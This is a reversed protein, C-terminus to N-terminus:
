SLLVQLKDEASRADRAFQSALYDRMKKRMWMGNTCVYVIRRQALLGNVLAEIQPYILPEGGCISVMPANCEIAANLCEELPMVDKMSTSYERIRGCGTCTLNCTHLPELQLVTAFRKTGRLKHRLIHGAVKLTLALPFRM